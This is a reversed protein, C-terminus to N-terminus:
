WALEHLSFPDREKCGLTDAHLAKRSGSHDQQMRLDYLTLRFQNIFITGKETKEEATM